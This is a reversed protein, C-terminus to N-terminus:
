VRESLGEVAEEFVVGGGTVEREVGCVGKGGVEDDYVFGGHEIGGEGGADEFGDGVFGVEEEDAISM